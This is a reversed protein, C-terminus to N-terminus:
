IVFEEDMSIKRGTAVFPMMVLEKTSGQMYHLIDGFTARNKNRLASEMAAAWYSGLHNSPTQSLYKKHKPNSYDRDWGFVIIDGTSQKLRSMEEDALGSGAQPQHQACQQKQQEMLSTEFRQSLDGFSGTVDQAMRAGAEFLNSGAIVNTLVTRGNTTYKYPLGMGTDNVICNFVATLRASPPLNHVLHHHLYNADIAGYQEFDAPLIYDARLRRIGSLVESRRELVQSPLRGFGCFYFFVSDNPRVNSMMRGIHKTILQHTPHSRQDKLDDSLLTVNKELYGYKSVLLTKLTHASNINSTQSYEVGYYNIGIVLAYKTGSLNSKQVSIHHRYAHFSNADINHWLPYAINASSQVLTPTSSKNLDTGAFAGSALLTSTSGNVPYGQLTAQSSHLHQSNPISMASATLASSQNLQQQQSLPPAGYQQQGPAVSLAGMSSALASVNNGHQAAGMPPPHGVSERQQDYYDSAERRRGQASGASGADGVLPSGGYSNRPDITHKRQLGASSMAGAQAVIPEATLVSSIPPHGAVYQTSHEAYSLRADQRTTMVPRAGPIRAPDNHSASARHSSLRQSGVMQQAQPSPSQHPPPPHQHHQHQRQQSPPPMPHGQPPGVDPGQGHGQGHLHDHHPNHQHRQHQSHSSPPHIHQQADLPHQAHSEPLPVQARYRSIPPQMDGPPPMAQAVNPPSYHVLPQTSPPPLSYSSTSYVSANAQQQYAQQQQQRQLQQQQQQQQQYPSQYLPSPATPVPEPRYYGAEAQSYAYTSSTSAPPQSFAPQALAVPPPPHQQQHRLHKQQQQQQPPQSPPTAYYQQKPQLAHQHYVETNHAIHGPALGQHHHPPHSGYPGTTHTHLMPPPQQQQQYQPQGHVYPESAPASVNSYAYQQPPPQQPPPQYTQAPSQSFQGQPQQLQPPAYRNPVQSHYQGAADPRPPGPAQFAGPNSSQVSYHGQQSPHVQLPPASHPPHHSVPYNNRMDVGPPQHQGSYAGDYYPQPVVLPPPRAPPQQHQQQHAYPAIDAAYAGALSSAYGASDAAGAPVVPAASSTYVYREDVPPPQQHPAGPRYHQAQQPGPAYSM